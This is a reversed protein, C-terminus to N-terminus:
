YSPLKCLKGAKTIEANCRMLWFEPVTPDPDCPYLTRLHTAIDEDLPHRNILSTWFTELNINRRTEYANDLQDLWTRWTRRPRRGEEEIRQLIQDRVDVGAVYDEYMKQKVKEDLIGTRRINPWLGEWLDAYNWDKTRTVEDLCQLLIIEHVPYKKLLKECCDIAHGVDQNDSLVAGFLKQVHPFIAGQTLETEYLWLSIDPRGQREYAGAVTRRFFLHSRQPNDLDTWCQITVNDADCVNRYHSYLIAFAHSVRPSSSNAKVAAAMLRLCGLDRGPEAAVLLATLAQNYWYRAKWRSTRLGAAFSEINSVTICKLEQV